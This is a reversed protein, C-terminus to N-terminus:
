VIYQYTYYVAITVGNIVVFLIIGKVIYESLFKLLKLAKTKIKLKM